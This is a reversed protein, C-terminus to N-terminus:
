ITFRRINEETPPLNHLACKEIPTRAEPAAIWVILYMWFGTSGCILACLLIIRVITVDVGIFLALGSCVGAIRKNDPDRFLRRATNEM